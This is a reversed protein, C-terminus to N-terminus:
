PNPKQRLPVRWTEDLTAGILRRGDPLIIEKEEPKTRPTGDPPTPRHTVPEHSVSVGPFHGPVFTGPSSPESALQPAPENARQAPAPYIPPLDKQSSPESKTSLEPANGPRNETNNNILGIVLMTTLVAATILFRNRM